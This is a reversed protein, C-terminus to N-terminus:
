KLMCESIIHQYIEPKITLKLHDEYTKMAGTSFVTLPRLHCLAKLKESDPIPAAIITEVFDRKLAIAAAYVRFGRYYQTRWCRLWFVREDMKPRKFKGSKHASFIKQKMAIREVIFKCSENQFSTAISRLMTEFQWQWISNSYFDKGLRIKRLLFVSRDDVDDRWWSELPTADMNVKTGVRREYLAHYLVDEVKESHIIRSKEAVVKVFDQDVIDDLIDVSFQDITEDDRESLARRYRECAWLRQEAIYSKSKESLNSIDGLITLCEIFQRLADLDIKTEWNWDFVALAKYAHCLTVLALVHELSKADSAQLFKSATKIHGVIRQRSEEKERDNSYSQFLDSGTKLLFDDFAKQTQNM